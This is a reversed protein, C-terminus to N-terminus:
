LSMYRFPLCFGKSKLPRVIMFDPSHDDEDVIVVAEGVVEDLIESIQPGFHLDVAVIADGDIFDKTQIGCSQDDGGAGAIRIVGSDAKIKDFGGGFSVGRQEANTQSVLGDSLGEASLNNFCRGQVALCRLDCMASFTNKGAQGGRQLDRAIVREDDFSLAQRVNKFDCGFCCISDNHAYLVPFFRNVPDLEVGFADGGLM